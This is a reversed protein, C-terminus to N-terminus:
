ECIELTFIWKSSNSFVALFLMLLNMYWSAFPYYQFFGTYIMSEYLNDNSAVFQFYKKLFSDSFINRLLKKNAMM